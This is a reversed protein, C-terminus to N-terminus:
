GEDHPPGIIGNNYANFLTAWGLVAERTATTLETWSHWDHTALFEDAAAIEEVVASSGAGKAINLKTALLQAYLKAIGNSAGGYAKFSLAAVAEAPTEIYLSRAGGPAGLWVPLLPSVVDAQSGFGAHNKWYGITYTFGEEPTAILGFGILSAKRVIPEGEVVHAGISLDLYGRSELNIFDWYSGDSWIAGDPLDNSLDSEVIQLTDTADSGDTSVFDLQLMPRLAPDSHEGSAMCTYPTDGQSLRIGYNPFVGAIWAQVLVTIDVEYKGAGVVTFSAVPAPDYAGEIGNWTVTSEEWPATVRYVSVTKPEECTAYLVTLFLRASVLSMGSPVVIERKVGGEASDQYDLQCSGLTVFVLLIGALFITVKKM